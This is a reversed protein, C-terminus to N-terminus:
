ESERQEKKTRRCGRNSDKNTSKDRYENEYPVLNNLTGYYLYLAM